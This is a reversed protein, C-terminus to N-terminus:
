FAFCRIQLYECVHMRLIYDSNAFAGKKRAYYYDFNYYLGQRLVNQCTLQKLMTSSQGVLCHLQHLGEVNAVFGGGYKQNVKVQDPLMGAKMAEDHPM